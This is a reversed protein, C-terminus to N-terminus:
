ITMTAKVRRWLFIPWLPYALISFFTLLLNTPVKEHARAPRPRTLIFVTVLWVAFASYGIASLALTDSFWIVEFVFLLQLLSIYLGGIVGLFLGWRAIGSARRELLPHVALAFLAWCFFAVAGLSEVPVSHSHSFPVVMGSFYILLHALLGITWLTTIGYALWRANQSLRAFM